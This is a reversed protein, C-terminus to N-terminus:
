NLCCVLLFLPARWATVRSTFGSFLPPARAVRGPRVPPSPRRAPPLRGWLSRSPVSALRSSPNMPRPPPRFLTLSSRCPLMPLAAPCHSLGLEGFPIPLAWPRRVARLALPAGSASTQLARRGFSARCCRVAIAVVSAIAPPRTPVSYCCSAPWPADSSSSSPPPLTPEHRAHSSRRRRPCPEDLVAMAHSVSLALFPPLLGLSSFHFVVECKDVDHLVSFSRHGGCPSHRWPAPKCLSSFFRSSFSSYLSVQPVWL